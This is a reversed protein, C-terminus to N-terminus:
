SNYGMFGTADTGTDKIQLWGVPHILGAALAGSPIVVEEGSTKVITIAGAVAFSLGKFPGQVVTDSLTIPEYNFSQTTSTDLGDRNM